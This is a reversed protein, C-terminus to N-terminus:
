GWLFRIIEDIFKSFLLYAQELYNIYGYSYRYFGSSVSLYLRSVPDEYSYGGMWSGNFGLSRLLLDPLPLGAMFLIMVYSALLITSVVLSLPFPRSLTPISPQKSSFVKSTFLGYIILSLGFWLASAFIIGLFGGHYFSNILGLLPYFLVYIYFGMLFFSSHKLLKSYDDKGELIRGAEERLYNLIRGIATAKPMPAADAILNTIYENLIFYTIFVALLIFLLSGVRTDIFLNFFEQFLAPTSKVLEDLYNLSLGAILVSVYVYLGVVLVVFSLGVVAGRIGISTRRYGFGVVLLKSIYDSFFAIISYVIITSAEVLGGGVIYLISGALVYYITLIHPSMRGIGLIWLMSVALAVILIPQDTIAMSRNMFDYFSYLNLIAFVAILKYRLRRLAEPRSRAENM